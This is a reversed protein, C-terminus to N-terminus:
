FSNVKRGLWYTGHETQRLRVLFVTTEREKRITRGSATHTADPKSRVESMNMRKEMRKADTSFYVLLELQFVQTNM